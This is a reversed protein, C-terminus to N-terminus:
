DEGPERYRTIDIHAIGTVTPKLTGARIADGVKTAADAANPAEVDQIYQEETTAIVRYKPM